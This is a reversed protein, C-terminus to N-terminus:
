NWLLIINYGVILIMSWIFWQWIIKNCFKSWSNNMKYCLKELETNQVSLLMNDQRLSIIEGLLEANTKRKM